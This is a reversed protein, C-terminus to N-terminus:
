KKSGKKDSKGKSDAKYSCLKQEKLPCEGCRPSAAKCYDRGFHVIRHCFERSKDDPIIDRLQKEVSYPDKSESLGLRGTVRICHTDTIIAPQNFIDGLILNATKRGIGPLTLLEEMTSPLKSDYKQILMNAIGIIDKAKTKFLGCSKIIDMVELLDAEALQELSTYREFLPKTVINVRADTCQASMRTAILLEYPKEKNYILSCEAVPYINELCEIVMLAKKKKTM